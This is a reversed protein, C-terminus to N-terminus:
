TRLLASRLARIDSVPIRLRRPAYEDNAVKRLGPLRLIDIAATLGLGSVLDSGTALLVSSEPSLETLAKAVALHRQTHGLGLGDHSYFLFRHASTGPSVFGASEVIEQERLTM